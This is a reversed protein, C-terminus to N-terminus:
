DRPGTPMMAGDEKWGLPLCGFLSDGYRNRKEIPLLYLVNKQILRSVSSGMNEWEWQSLDHFYSSVLGREENEKPSVMEKLTVGRVRERLLISPRAVKEKRRHFLM